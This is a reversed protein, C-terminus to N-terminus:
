KYLNQFQREKKFDTFSGVTVVLFIAILISGAQMYTEEPNESFFGLIFILISSLSLIQVCFDKIQEKFYYFLSKKAEFPSNNLGFESKRLSNENDNLTTIGTKKNSKLKGILSKTGGLDILEQFSSGTTINSPIFLKSLEEKKISFNLM